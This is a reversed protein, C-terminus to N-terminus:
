DEYQPNQELCKWKKKAQNQNFTIILISSSCMVLLKRPASQHETRVLVACILCAAWAALHFNEERTKRGSPNYNKKLVYLANM